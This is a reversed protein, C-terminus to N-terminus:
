QSPAAAATGQLLSEIVARAKASEEVLQGGRAIPGAVEQGPDALEASPSLTELAERWEEPGSERVLTWDGTWVATRRAQEEEGADALGEVAARTEGLQLNAHARVGEAAPGTLGEIAALAAPADRVALFAQAAMIRRDESDGELVPGLWGLALEAMGLSMLRRAVAFEVDPLTEPRAKARRAAESLFVADAGGEVALSWLDSFTEADDTDFAFAGEFDNAMAHALITARLLGKREVPDVADRLFVSLASPLGPDITHNGVLAAEVVTVAAEATAPGPESLVTEALDHAEADNGEALQYRAELLALGPDEPSPLRLTADRLQRATEHDPRALFLDVLDPGLFRRLHLPLASFARVVAHTNTQKPVSEGARAAALVAWLAVATECTEMGQFPNQALPQGDLLAAMARLHVATDAGPDSQFDLIQRAEAGFGLFLHFRASRLIAEDVPADFETLLGSRALGIQVAVPASTGWAAIDFDTEPPCIQGSATLATATEGGEALALGPLEGVALRSWPGEVGAGDKSKPPAIGEAIEVVGEAAGKSIQGLLADRLPDLSLEGTPLPLPLLSETEGTKGERQLAIWDYGESEDLAKTESMAGAVDAAESGALPQEFASGEPAAGSKIDIVVIGPRFEFAIAYCACALSFRLTGTEPDQWLAALRNRPIREFARTVDYSTVSQPMRLEYGDESRGLAWSAGTEGEVVLRTFDEHEGGSVRAVEALAPWGLFAVLVALRPLLTM